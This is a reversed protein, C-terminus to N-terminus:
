KGIIRCTSLSTAILSDVYVSNQNRFEKCLYQLLTIFIHNM